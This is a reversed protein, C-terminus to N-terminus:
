QPPNASNSYAPHQGLDPALPPPWAVPENGELIGSVTEVHYQIGTGRLADHIGQLAARFAEPEEWDFVLDHIGTIFRVGVLRRLRDAVEIPSPGESTFYLDIYTRM